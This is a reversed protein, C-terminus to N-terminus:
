VRGDGLGVGRSTWGCCIVNIKQDLEATYSWLIAGTEVSLAFVDNQGTVIYIVGDQVIPQAEGSYKVGLGSGGLSTRWVGKLQAVNDRNIQTLPSYRRNYLDGGNTPWGSTPLQTLTHFTQGSTVVSAAVLGFMILVRRM